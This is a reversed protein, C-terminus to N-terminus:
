FIVDDEGYITGGEMRAIYILQLIAKGDTVCISPSNIKTDDHIGGIFYPTITWVNVGTMEIDIGHRSDPADLWQPVSVLTSETNVYSERSMNFFYSM